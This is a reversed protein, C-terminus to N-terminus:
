SEEKKKEENKESKNEEKNEKKSKEMLEKMQLSLEKQQALQFQIQKAMEAILKQNNLNSNELSDIKETLIKIQINQSEIMKEKKMMENYTLECKLEENISSYISSFVAKIENIKKLGQEPIIEVGKIKKYLYELEVKRYSKDVEFDKLGLNYGNIQNNAIAAIVFKIGNEEIIRLIHKYSSVGEKIDNINSGNYKTNLNAFQREIYNRDFSCLIGICYEPLKVNYNKMNHVFKSIKKIQRLISSLDFAGKVELFFPVNKPITAEDFNKIIISAFLSNKINYNDLIYQFINNNDFQLGKKGHILGIEDHLIYIGDVEKEFDEYYSYKTYKKYKDIENYFVFGSGGEKESSNNIRSSDKISSSVSLMSKNTMIENKKSTNTDNIREIIKNNENSFINSSDENTKSCAHIKENIIDDISFDNAPILDKGNLKLNKQEFIVTGNDTVFEPMNKRPIFIFKKPKFCAEFEPIEIDQIILRKGKLYRNEIVGRFENYAPICNKTLALFINYKIENIEEANQKNKQSKETKSKHSIQISNRSSNNFQSMKITIIKKQPSYINIACVAEKIISGSEILDLIQLNDFTIQEKEEDISLISM